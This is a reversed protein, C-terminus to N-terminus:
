RWRLLGAPPELELELVMDTHLHPLQAAERIQEIHGSLGGIPAYDSDPVEELMLEEAESKPIKEYVYGSRPELLLSDGARLPVDLLPSALRVIREEDAQAIVLAREGDALLEKLMVVDGVVEYACAEVVNLAENLMLEQGL